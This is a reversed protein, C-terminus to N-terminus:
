LDIWFPFAFGLIGRVQTLTLNIHKLLPKITKLLLTLEPSTVIWSQKERQIMDPDCYSWLFLSHSPVLVSYFDDFGHEMRCSTIKLSSTFPIWGGGAPRFASQYSLAIFLFFTRLFHICSLSLRTLWGMGSTPNAQSLLVLLFITNYLPLNIRLARM